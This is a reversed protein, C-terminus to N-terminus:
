FSVLNPVKREDEEKERKEYHSFDDFLSTTHQYSHIIKLVQRGKEPPVEQTDRSNTVPKNENNELRIHRLQNNPVDKVYIWKVTFQGKYKDQAWVGVSKGYDVPSTMQSVGCFHGSGNVSAFVYIPGKGEREKYATDLRKNGHDTSCWIGYKISRHFDDENYSKIVFYRAGKTPLTFEKPNYENETRLKDLIPHFPVAVTSNKVASTSSNKGFVAGGSGNISNDESESNNASGNNVQNEGDESDPSNIFNTAGLSNKSVNNRSGNNAINGGSTTWSTANTSSKQQANTRTAPQSTSGVSSWFGGANNSSNNLVSSLGASASGLGSIPIKKTKVTSNGGPQKVISAWTKKAPVGVNSQGLNTVQGGGGGSGYPPVGGMNTSRHQDEFSLRGMNQEVSNVMVMNTANRGDHQQIFNSYNDTGGSGYYCDAGGGHKGVVTVNSSGGRGITQQQQQSAGGGTLLGSSGWTNYDGGSNPPFYGFLYSNPGFLNMHHDMPPGYQPSAPSGIQGPFYGTWGNSYYATTPSNMSPPYFNTVYDGTVATGTSPSTM